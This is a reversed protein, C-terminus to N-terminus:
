NKESIEQMRKEFDKKFTPFYRNIVTFDFEPLIKEKSERELLFEFAKRILSEPGILGSTFRQYDTRNLSVKHKTQSGNEEVSVEFIMVQNELLKTVTIKADQSM